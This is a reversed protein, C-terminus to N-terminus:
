SNSLAGVDGSNGNKRPPESAVGAERPSPPSEPTHSPGIRVEFPSVHTYIYMYTHTYIYIYIHACTYM